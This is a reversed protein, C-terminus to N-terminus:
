KAHGGANPQVWMGLYEKAAGRVGSKFFKEGIREDMKVNFKEQKKLGV